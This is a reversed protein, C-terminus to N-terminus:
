AGAKALAARARATVESDPDAPNSLYSPCVALLYSGWRPNTRPFEEFVAAAYKHHHHEAAKRLTLSRFRRIFEAARQPERTVRLSLSASRLHSRSAEEIAKEVTGPDDSIELGDLGPGKMSLGKSGQLVDRATPLWAAAQLLLLRRTQERSTTRSAHDFANLITMPHVGLLQANRITSGALRFLIESAILRLGDWISEAAVGRKLLALILDVAEGATATRMKILIEHSVEPDPRGAEWGAPIEPIRERNREFFATTRGPRGGLLGHVLSRIVPERHHGDIMRLARHAQSAHIMLHGINSFDRAGMPWLIEFLDDLDLLRAAATAARDALEVDWRELSDILSRRARAPDDTLPPPAPPLSWDGERVDMEQADKLVNINFFIPLWSDEADAAESLQMASPVMLVVHFKVGPPWPRVDQVGALLVGGLMERQTAGRRIKEAALDFV